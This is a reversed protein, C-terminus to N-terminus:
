SCLAPAICERKARNRLKAGDGLRPKKRQGVHICHRDLAGSLQITAKTKVQNETPPCEIPSIHVKDAPPISLCEWGYRGWPKRQAYPQSTSLAMSFLPRERQSLKLAKM